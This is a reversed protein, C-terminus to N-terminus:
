EEIFEIEEDLHNKCIDEASNNFVDDNVYFYIQEDIEQEETGNQEYKGEMAEQLSLPAITIDGEENFEPLIVTLNRLPYEKGKYTVKNM